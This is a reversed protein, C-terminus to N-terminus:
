RRAEMGLPALAGECLAKFLLFAQEAEAEAEFGPECALRKLLGGVYTFLFRAVAASDVSAAAEGKAKAIDIMRELRALIDADVARSMAAIAPNRAGEAWIEVILTAKQRPRLAIHQRLGAAFAAFISAAEAAKAFSAAREQQDRSCLGEVIAEKSPFTRYLNGASMGAAEAVHQMTAAHFGHAAFAQEAAELIRERREDDSLRRAASLSMVSM